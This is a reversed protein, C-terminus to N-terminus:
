YELDENIVIKEIGEMGKLSEPIDTVMSETDANGLDLMLEAKNKDSIEVPSIYSPYFDEPYSELLRDIRRNMESADEETIDHDFYISYVFSEGDFAAMTVEFGLDLSEFDYMDNNDTKQNAENYLLLNDSRHSSTDISFLIIIGILIFAGIFYHGYRRKFIRFAEKRKENM